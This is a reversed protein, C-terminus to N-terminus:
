EICFRSVRRKYQFLDRAFSICFSGFRLVLSFILELEIEQDLVATTVARIKIWSQRRRGITSTEKMPLTTTMYAM